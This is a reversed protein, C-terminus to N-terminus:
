NIKEICIFVASRHTQETTVRYVVYVYVLFVIVNLHISYTYIKIFPRTRSYDNISNYMHTHTTYLYYSAIACSENMKMSEICNRKSNLFMRSSNYWRFHFFALHVVIWFCYWNFHASICVYMHQLGFRTLYIIKKNGASEVLWENEM